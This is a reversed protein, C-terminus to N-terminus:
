RGKTLWAFKKNVELSLEGLKGAKKKAWLLCQSRTGKFVTKRGSKLRYPQTPKTM